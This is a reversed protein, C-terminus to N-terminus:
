DCYRGRANFGFSFGVRVGQSSPIAFINVPINLKGSKFTKGAALVFGTNIEPLGRSDLRSETPYPSFNTEKETLRVWRGGDEQDYYGQSKRVLSVTPGFAFEWGSANNRIGNMITFSPIFLGQDLGTIMPIFEFLAQFNGENLYQKEFQYGFQFMVPFAEFGGNYEKDSMIKAVKPELYFSTFGMRPGDSRLCVRNPNNVANEFDNRKTLKTLLFEDNKVGFLDNMTLHVMTGLEPVISLYESTQAKEFQKSAKDFIKITVSIKGDLIKTNAVVLKDIAVKQSIVELCFRSLCNQYDIKNQTLIYDMDFRDLVQFRDVMEFEKRLLDSLSYNASQPDPIDNRFAVVALTPKSSTQALTQFFSLGFLLFLTAFNNKFSTKMLSYNKNKISCLHAGTVVWDKRFILGFGGNSQM